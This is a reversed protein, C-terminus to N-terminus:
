AVSAGHLELRLAQLASDIWEQVTEPPQQLKEAIEAQASGEFFAMALVLKQKDTLKAFAKRIRKASDPTLKEQDLAHFLGLNELRDTGATNLDRRGEAARLYDVARNRAITLIWPGLAGHEDDFSTARNWVHLLSEQLIDDAARSDRVIRFIVSYAIRGYRLYLDSMAKPKRAKLGRVTDADGRDRLAAQL